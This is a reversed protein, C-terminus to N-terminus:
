PRAHDLDQNLIRSTDRPLVYGGERISNFWTSDGSIVENAMKWAIGADLYDDGQPVQAPMGPPRLTRAIVDLTRRGDAVNLGKYRPLVGKAVYMLWWAALTM